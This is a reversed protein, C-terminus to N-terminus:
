GLSTRRRTVLCEEYTPCPQEIYVDIDKVAAVVRAAEHMTWGTNADAVLIDGPRMEKAALRIREIDTDANGGM